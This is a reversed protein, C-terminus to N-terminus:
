LIIFYHTELNLLSKHAEQAADAIVIIQKVTEWPFMNQITDITRNIEIHLFLGRNKFDKPKSKELEDRKMLWFSLHKSYRTIQEDISYLKYGKDFSNVNLYEEYESRYLDLYKKLTAKKLM